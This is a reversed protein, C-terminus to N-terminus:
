PSPRLPLASAAIFRRHGYVRRWPGPSTTRPARGRGCHRSASPTGHSLFSVPQPKHAQLTIRGANEIVEVGQAFSLCGRSSRNELALAPLTADFGKGADRMIPCTFEKAMDAPRGPYQQNLEVPEDEFAFSPVRYLQGRGRACCNAKCSPLQIMAKAQEFRASRDGDFAM